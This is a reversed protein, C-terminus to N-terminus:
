LVGFRYETKSHFIEGPLLASSPFDPHNPSDPFAQTEMCFGDFPGYARGGKGAAHLGGATYLQLAPRDTFVALTVGSKASEGYAARRFGSGRLVYCHDYGGALQSIGESVSRLGVMDLPTGAVPLVRGTPILARNTELYGDADVCLRHAQLISGGDLSFYAHNTLNALTPASTEAEYEISLANTENLAFTVQVQLDGPFGNEGDPSLRTFTLRDGDPWAEWFGHHFGEGGGHLCNPGDNPTLRHEKGMLSFCAGGIRNAFRGVTAGMYAGGRAYDEVCDCGLAVDIPNGRGDPVVLSVLTAGYDTLEAYAGYANTLRFRTAGRGAAKGFDFAQIM